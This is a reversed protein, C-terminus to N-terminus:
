CQSRTVCAGADNLLYGFNCQCGVVCQASCIIGLLPNDSCKAPCAIGCTTFQANPGCSTGSRQPRAIVMATLYSFTILLIFCIKNCM